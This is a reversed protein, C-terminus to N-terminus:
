RAANYGGSLLLQWGNRSSGYDLSFRKELAAARKTGQELRVQMKGIAKRGGEKKENVSQNLQVGESEM